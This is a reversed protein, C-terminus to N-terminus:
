RGLLHRLGPELHPYAFKYGTEQLKKPIVRTSTLLLAEAMEGLILKIPATIMAEGLNGALLMALYMPISGLPPVGLVKCVTNTFEENTVPNPSVVNVPGSVSDTVLAHLISGVVDDLTVWSYYQQGNGLISGGGLQFPLLIQKLAGGKPSLIIGFRTKVVRTGKAALNDSASEWGLCVDSLFGHGSTNEETLEETGREGYYGIASASVFVKPPTELKALSDALFRTGKVRSDRIKAKKAKTWRGEAINEGALHVVADIDGLKELEITKAEPNWQVENANKPTHRVLSVVQHGQTTLLPLLAQGVLGSAGSVLIKMRPAGKYQEYWQLDQQTIRHRYTFTRELKAWTFANAALGGFPELPHAYRVTDILQSSTSSINKVEHLHDWLAFPSETAIDRFFHPPNYGIHKATWRLPLGFMKIELKVETGVALSPAAQLVTVSEWPPTLREFAGPREHWSFVSETSSNISSSLTYTKEFM